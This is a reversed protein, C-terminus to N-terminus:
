SMHSESRGPRSNNKFVFGPWFASTQCEECFELPVGKAKLRAEVSRIFQPEEFDGLLAPGFRIPSHRNFLSIDIRARDRSRYVVRFIKVWPLHHLRFPARYTVGEPEMAGYASDRSIFEAWGPLVYGRRLTVAFVTLMVMAAASFRDGVLKLYFSYVLGAAAFLSFLLSSQRM